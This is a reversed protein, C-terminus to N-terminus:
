AAEWCATVTHKLPPEFSCPVSYLGSVRTGHAQQWLLAERLLLSLLIVIATQAPQNKASAQVAGFFRDKSRQRQRPPQQM